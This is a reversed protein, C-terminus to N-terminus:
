NTIYLLYMSSTQFASANRAGGNQWTNSTTNTATQSPLQLLNYFFSYWDFFHVFFYYSVCVENWRSNMVRKSNWKRNDHHYHYYDVFSCQNSIFFFFSLYMGPGGGPKTLNATTNTATQLPLPLLKYILITLWFFSCFLLFVYRPSSICQTKLGENQRSNTAQKGNHQHDNTTAITTSIGRTRFPGDENKKWGEDEFNGSGSHPNGSEGIGKM